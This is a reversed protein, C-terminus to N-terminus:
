DWTLDGIQVIRGNVTNIVLKSCRYAEHRLEEVDFPAHCIDEPTNLKIMVGRLELHRVGGLQYEVLSEPHRILVDLGTCTDLHLWRDWDTGNDTLNSYWVLSISGTLWVGTADAGSKGSQAQLACRIRNGLVSSRISHVTPTMRNLDALSGGEVEWEVTRRSAIGAFQKILEDADEAMGGISDYGTRLLADHLQELPTHDDADENSQEYIDTLSEVLAGGFAYRQRRTLPLGGPCDAETVWNIAAIVPSLTELRRDWSKIAQVANDFTTAPLVTTITM